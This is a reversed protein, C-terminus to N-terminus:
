LSNLLPSASYGLIYAARWILLCTNTDALKVCRLTTVDLASFSSYADPLTLWPLVLSEPYWSQGEKEHRQSSLFVLDKCVRPKKKPVTSLNATFVSWSFPLPIEKCLFGVEKRPIVKQVKKKALFNTDHKIFGFVTPHPIESFRCLLESTCVCLVSNHFFAAKRSVWM